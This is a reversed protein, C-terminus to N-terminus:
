FRGQVTLSGPGVGLKASAKKDKAKKRKKARKSKTNLLIAIGLTTLAGGALAFGLVHFETNWLRGCNGSADVDNGQCAGGLKYPKDRLV